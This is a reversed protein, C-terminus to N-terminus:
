NRLKQENEVAVAKPSQEEMLRSIDALAIAEAYERHLGDREMIAAREDWRVHWESSLESPSICVRMPVVNPARDPDFIARLDLMKKSELKMVSVHVCSM